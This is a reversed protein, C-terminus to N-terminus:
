PINGEPPAAFQQEALCVHGQLRALVDREDTGIAAALGAQECQQQALKSGVGAIDVETM